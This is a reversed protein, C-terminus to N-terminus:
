VGKREEPRSQKVLILTYGLLFYYTRAVYKFIIGGDTLGYATIGSFAFMMAWPYPNFPNSKILNYLHKFIFACYLLYAIFSLFGGTSLFYIFVNHPFDQGAEKSEVPHYKGEAYAAQWENLGIGTVPHDIFMQYSSEWMMIREGGSARDPYTSNINLSPAVCFAITSIFLVLLAYKLKHSLLKWLNLRFLIFMLCTSAILIALYVGRVQCFYLTLICLLLLIIYGAKQLAVVKHNHAIAFALIFPVFLILIFTPSHSSFYFSDLVTKDTFFYEWLGYGCLASTIGIITANVSLRVDYTQGIYLIMFFSLTNEIFSLLSYYGGYINNTNDIHFISVAALTGYLIIIALGIYKPIDPKALSKRTYFDYLWFLVFSIMSVSYGINTYHDTTVGWAILIATLNAFCNTKTM